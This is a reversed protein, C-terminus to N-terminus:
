SIIRKPTSNSRRSKEKERPTIRLLNRSAEQTRDTLIILQGVQFSTELLQQSAAPYESLDGPDQHIQLAPLTM